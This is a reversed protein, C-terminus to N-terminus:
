TKRVYLSKYQTEEFPLVTWVARYSFFLLKFTIEKQTFSYVNHSQDLKCSSNVLM